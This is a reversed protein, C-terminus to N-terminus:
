SQDTGDVLASSTSRRLRQCLRFSIEGSRQAETSIVSPPRDLHRHAGRGSHPQGTTACPGTGHTPRLGIHVHGSGHERPASQPLAVTVKLASWRSCPGPHPQNDAKPRDYPVPGYAVLSHGDDRAQRPVARQGRAVGRGTRDGGDDDQAVRLIERTSYARRDHMSEPPM